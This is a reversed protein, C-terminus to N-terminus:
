KKELASQDLVLTSLQRKTEFASLLGVLNNTNALHRGIPRPGAGTLHYLQERVKNNNKLLLWLPGGLM